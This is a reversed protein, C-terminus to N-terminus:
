QVRSRNARARFVRRYWPASPRDVPPAPETPDTTATRYPVYEPTWMAARVAARMNDPQSGAVGDGIAANAVAVAVKESVGRLGTISPYLSGGALDEPTVTDALTDAAALFMGPTIASARAVM